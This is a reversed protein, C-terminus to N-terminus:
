LFEVSGNKLNYFAGTICLTGEEAANSIIKSRKPLMDLQYMINSLFHNDNIQFSKKIENLLENSNDTSKEAAIVAGCNTHGLIILIDVKLHEVAYELSSLVSVDRAINGAVRVVFLEGISKDFIFEPIIRSDACTLVAIKPNQSDVFKALNDKNESIYRKNSVKLDQILQNSSNNKPM